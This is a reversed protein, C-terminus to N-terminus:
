PITTRVLAPAPALCDAPHTPLADLFERGSGYDEVRFGHATLLRRLAKRMQPENDLAGAPTAYSM